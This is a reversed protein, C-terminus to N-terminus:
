AVNGLGQSIQAASHSAERPKTVALPSRGQVCEARKSNHSVNCLPRYQFRHHSCFRQVAPLSRQRGQESSGAALSIRRFQRSASRHLPCREVGRPGGCYEFEATYSNFIGPARPGRSLRGTGPPLDASVPGIPTTCVVDACPLFWQHQSVVALVHQRGQERAPALRACQGRGMRLTGRELRETGMQDYNHM